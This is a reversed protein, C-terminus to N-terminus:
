WLILQDYSFSPPLFWRLSCCCCKLNYLLVRTIIIGHLYTAIAYSFDPSSQILFIHFDPGKSTNEYGYKWYPPPLNKLAMGVSPATKKQFLGLINSIPLKMADGTYKHLFHSPSVYTAQATVVKVQVAQKDHM